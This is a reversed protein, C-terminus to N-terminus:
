KLPEADYHLHYNLGLRVTDYKQSIDFIGKALNGAGANDQFFVFGHSDGLDIYQYEAKLSWAPTLSYELGGGLVYGTRTASPTGTFTHVGGVADDLTASARGGVGGYAFGGTVYILARDYTYGLRGRVTGFWDLSSEKSVSASAFPGGGRGGTAGAEAFAAGRGHIDGGEFDTEVGLVFRDIQFNYGIQGGGFGGDKDFRTTPSIAEAHIRNIAAVALAYISSSDASWGYGGNIGGYFGTWTQVPADPGDKYGGSRVPQPAYIDAANAHGIVATTVFALGALRIPISVDAGM